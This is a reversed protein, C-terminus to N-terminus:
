LFINIMIQQSIDVRPIASAFHTNCMVHCNETKFGSWNPDGTLVTQLKLLFIALWSIIFNQYEDDDDYWNGEAKLGTEFFM